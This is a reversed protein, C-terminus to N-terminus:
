GNDMLPVTKKLAWEGGGDGVQWSIHLSEWVSRIMESTETFIGIVGM